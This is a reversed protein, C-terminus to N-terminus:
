RGHLVCMTGCGSLGPTELDADGDVRLLARDGLQAIRPPVGVLEADVADPEPVVEKRKIAVWLAVLEFAPRQQGRDRQVRANRLDAGHHRRDPVPIRVEDRVHGARDVLQRTTAEDEAQACAPELPIVVLETERETLYAVPQPHQAFSQRADLFSDRLQLRARRTPHRNEDPAATLLHRQPQDGLV